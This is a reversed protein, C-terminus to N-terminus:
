TRERMSLQLWRSDSVLHGSESAEEYDGRKARAGRLADAAGRARILTFILWHARSAHASVGHVERSRFATAPTAVNRRHRPAGRWRIYQLSLMAVAAARARLRAPM